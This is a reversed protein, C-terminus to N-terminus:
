PFLGKFDKLASLKSGFNKDIEVIFTLWAWIFLGVIVYGRISEPIATHMLPLLLQLILFGFTPLAAIFIAKLSALIRSRWQRPLSPQEPEMQVLTDWNGKLIGTLLSTISKVFYDTAEIKPVLIRRKSKRMATAIRETTENFWTDTVVDGSRLRRPLYYEICRASEEILFLQIQKYELRIKPDHKDKREFDEKVRLIAVLDFILVAIPYYTLRWWKKAHLLLLDAPLLIIWSTIWFVMGLLLGMRIGADIEGSLGIRAILFSQYFLVMCVPLIVYLSLLLYAVWKVQNRERRILRDFILVLIAFSVNSTVEFYTPLNSSWTSYDINFLKRATYRALLEVLFLNLIFIFIYVTRVLRNSSLAMRFFQLLHSALYPLLIDKTQQDLSQLALFDRLHTELIKVSKKGAQKKLWNISYSAFSRLAKWHHHENKKVVINSSANGKNDM